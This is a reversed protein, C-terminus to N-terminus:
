EAISKAQALSELLADLTREGTLTGSFTPSTHRNGRKIIAHLMVDCSPQTIYMRKWSGVGERGPLRRFEVDFGGEAFDLDIRAQGTNQDRSLKMSKCYLRRRGAKGCYALDIYLVPNLIINALPSSLPDNEFFLKQQLKRSKAIVFKFQRNVRQAILVADNPLEILLMELLESTNSLRSGADLESAPGTVTTALHAAQRSRRLENTLDNIHRISQEQALILEKQVLVLSEVQSVLQFQSNQVGALLTCINATMNDLTADISEGATMPPVAKAIFTKYHLYYAM